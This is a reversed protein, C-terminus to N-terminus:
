KLFEQFKKQIRQRRHAIASHDVGEAKAIEGVTMGKQLMQIIKIQEPTLTKLVAAMKAQREEAEEREIYEDETSAAVLNRELNEQRLEIADDTLTDLTRGRYYREKADNRWIARRTEALANAVEDTVEVFAKGGDGKQYVQKV